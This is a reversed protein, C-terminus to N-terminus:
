ESLKVKPRLPRKPGSFPRDARRMWWGDQEQKALIVSAQTLLVRAAKFTGRALGAEEAEREVEVTKRPGDSLTALIWEKAADVKSAGAKRGALEAATDMKAIAVGAWQVYQAEIKVQGEQIHTLALRYRVGVQKPGINSKEVFMSRDEPDEPAHGFFCVVRAANGFAISGAIRYVALAEAGKKPHMIGAVAVGTKAAFAALPGLVARVEADKHTDKDGFFASMPDFVVLAADTALIDQEIIALDRTLDIPEYPRDESEIRDSFIIRSPDGGAAVFRPGFVTEWDEEGSIWIVHRPKGDFPNPSGDPMEAGSTIRACIDTLATSKGGGGPGAYLSLRGRPLFPRWLWEVSRLPAKTDAHALRRVSQTKTEKRPEPKPWDVMTPDKRKAWDRKRKAVAARFAAAKEPAVEGVYGAAAKEAAALDTGHMMVVFVKWADVLPTNPGHLPSAVNFESALDDKVGGAGDPVLSLSPNGDLEPHAWRSDSVSEFGADEIISALVVAANFPERCASAYELRDGSGSTAGPPEVGLARSMDARATPDTFLRLLRAPAVPLASPPPEGGYPQRTDPHTSGPLVDYRAGTRCELITRKKPAGNKLWEGTPIALAFPHLTAGDPAAFLYRARGPRSRIAVGGLRAPDGAKVARLTILAQDEADLDLSLFGDGLVLAFGTAGGRRDLLKDAEAASGIRRATWRDWAPLKGRVPIVHAGEGLLRVVWALLIRRADGTPAPLPANEKM